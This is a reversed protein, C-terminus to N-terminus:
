LGAAKRLKRVEPTTLPRWNGSRLTRLRLPGVSVRKLKRVKFGLRALLRRIERNQGEKLTIALMTRDGRSRDTQANLIRVSEVQAKKAGPKPPRGAAASAAAAEPHDSKSKAISEADAIYLGKKLKALDEEGVRGVVTVRYEKPVEYRPHTLRHTLEGDNTLLILGTSDADLRGVPYLRQSALLKDDILDIVRKRNEPDDNTSIIGRPKNVMLYTKGVHTSANRSKGGSTPTINKSKLKRPRALAQGDVEIRDEAPDVWAPLEAVRQGNVTVRGQEIMEECARRSALGSEAMAKQLRIGRANDTYDHTM